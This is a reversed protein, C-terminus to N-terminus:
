NLNDYQEKLEALKVRAAEADAQRKNRQAEEYMKLAAQMQAKLATQRATFDQQSGQRRDKGAEGEKFRVMRNEMEKEVLDLRRRDNEDKSQALRDRIETLKEDNALRLKGQDIKNNWYKVTEEDKKIKRELDDRMRQNDVDVNEIAKERYRRTTDRLASEEELKKRGMQRSYKGYERDLAIENGMKEDANRDLAGGIGGAIGGGLGGGLMAGFSQSPDANALGKLAGIGLARFMDKWDHDQDYDKGGRSFDKGERREIESRTRDLQGFAKGRGGGVSERINEGVDGEVHRRVDSEDQLRSQLDGGLMSTLGRGVGSLPNRSLMGERLNTTDSTAPLRRMEDINGEIYGRVDGEDQLRSELDDPRHDRQIRKEHESRTDRGIGGVAGSIASGISSGMSPEEEQQRQRMAASQALIQRLQDPMEDIQVEPLMGRSISFNGRGRRKLYRAIEIDQKM